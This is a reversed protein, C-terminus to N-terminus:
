KADVLRFPPTPLAKSDELITLDKNEVFISKKKIAYCESILAILVASISTAIWVRGLFPHIPSMMERYLIYLIYIIGTVIIIGAITTLFLFM